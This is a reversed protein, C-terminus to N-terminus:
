VLDISKFFYHKLIMAFVIFLIVVPWVYKWYKAVWPFFKTALVIVFSGIAMLGTCIMGLNRVWLGISYITEYTTSSSDTIGPLTVYGLVTTLGGCLLGIEVHSLSDYLKEAFHRAYDTLYSFILKLM